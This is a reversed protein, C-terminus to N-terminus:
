VTLKSRFGRAAYYSEAGNHYIFTRGFRHDGFIAGGLERVDSPTKLWSSTSTDFPGFYQLFEYEEETLLEVGMAKAMDMATNEPKYKKRSELAERDYCVSRRGKPSEASCDFFIIDGTEEDKGVVDPEGGSLEMENLSWLKGPHEKLRKVVEEWDVDKHRGMNEMFRTRIASIIVDNQEQSLQKKSRSM